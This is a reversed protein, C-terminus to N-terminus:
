EADRERAGMMRTFGGDTFANLLAEIELVRLARAVDVRGALDRELQIRRREFYLHAIARALDAQEREVSRLERLMPVEENAFVIRDFRFTLAAEFTLADDTSVNTVADGGTLGRLDVTQGRRLSARATPLWGTARARDMADRVRGPSATRARLAADIVRAVSPERRYRYLAREIREPTVAATPESAAQAHATLPALSLLLFLLTKNM